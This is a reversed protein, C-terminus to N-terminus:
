TAYGTIHHSPVCVHGRSRASAKKADAERLRVGCLQRRRTPGGRAVFTPKPADTSTVDIHGFRAFTQNPRNKERFEHWTRTSHLRGLNNSFRGRKLNRM